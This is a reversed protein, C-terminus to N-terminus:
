NTEKEEKKGEQHHHPLNQVNQKNFDRLIEEGADESLGSAVVIWSGGESRDEILAARREAEAGVRVALDITEPALQLVQVVSQSCAAVAAALM